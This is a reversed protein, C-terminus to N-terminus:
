CTRRRIVVGALSQKGPHAPQPPCDRQRIGQQVEIADDAHELLRAVGADDLLGSGTPSSM